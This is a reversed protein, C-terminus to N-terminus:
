LLIKEGFPVQHDKTAVWIVPYEPEQKPFSGELDTLYILVRPPIDMNNCYDFVPNFNTGGRGNVQKIITDGPHYVKVDQIRADCQISIISEPNLEDLSKQEEGKFENFTQEDISGSTDIAFVFTGIKSNYLSPMIFETDYRINPKLFSWDTNSIETLYNWLITKWNIKPNTLDEVLKKFSDPLNGQQKAITAAQLLAKEWEHKQQEQEQKNGPLPKFGGINFEKNEPPKNLLLDKYIREFAWEKYKPSLCIHERHPFEFVKPENRQSKEINDEELIWNVEHDAAQNVIDKDAEPGFEKARWLHGLGCHLGEHCIVTMLEKITLQECFKENFYLNKGDTAFTEVANDIKPNLRLVLTSFFPERLVINKFAREIKKLM